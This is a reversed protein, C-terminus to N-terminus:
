LQLRPAEVAKNEILLLCKDWVPIDKEPCLPALARTLAAITEVPGKNM